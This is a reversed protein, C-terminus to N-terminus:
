VLIKNSIGMVTFTFYNNNIQLLLVHSISFNNLTCNNIYMQFEHACAIFYFQVFIYVIILTYKADRAYIIDACDM